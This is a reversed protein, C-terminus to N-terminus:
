GTVVNLVFNADTENPVDPPVQITADGRAYRYIGNGGAIYFPVTDGRGFLAAPNQDTALRVGRPESGCLRELRFTHRGACVIPSLTLV